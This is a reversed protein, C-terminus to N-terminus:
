KTYYTKTVVETSDFNVSYYFFSFYRNWFGFIRTITSLNIKVKNKIIYFSDDPRWYIFINM